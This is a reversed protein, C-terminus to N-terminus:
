TAKISWAHGLHRQHGGPQRSLTLAATGNAGGSISAAGQLTVNLVGNAVSLGVSQLNAMWMVWRSGASRSRRTKTSARRGPVTNVPADNVATISLTTTALNSALAGDNATFEIVRSTTNPNQSANNYTVTRLVQQYHAVTDAGSLTLIGTGSDYNATISTGATNAALVESAGNLLNTIRVTLSTLNASDIDALVADADAMAVPGGDETFSATFNAERPGPATIPTSTWTPADNVATVNM